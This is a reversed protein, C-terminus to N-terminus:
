YVFLHIVSYVFLIVIVFILIFFCFWFLMIMLVRWDGSLFVVCMDEYDAVYWRRHNLLTVMARDLDLGTNGIDRTLAHM